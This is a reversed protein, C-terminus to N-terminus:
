GPWLRDPTIIQLAHMLNGLPLLTLLVKASDTCPECARSSAIWARGPYVGVFGSTNNAKLKQAFERITLPPIRQVTADRYRKAAALANEAGEWTQDHFSKCFRIGRRSITVKWCLSKDNRKSISRTIGYMEAPKIRSDAM